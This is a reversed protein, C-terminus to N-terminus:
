IISWGQNKAEEFVYDCIKSGLKEKNYIRNNEYDYADIIKYDFGIAITKADKYVSYMFDESSEHLDGNNKKLRIEKSIEYPVDIFIKIDPEPLRMTEEFAILWEIFKKKITPNFLRGCQYLKNALTYRDMIIIKNPDDFVKEKDMMYTDYFDMLYFSSIVRPDIDDISGYKKYLYREVFIASEKGYSPFSYLKTFNDSNYIRDIENKLFKTNTEKFSCDLGDIVILKSM